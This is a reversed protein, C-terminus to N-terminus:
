ASPQSPAAAAFSSRSATRRRPRPSVIRGAMVTLRGEAVLRTVTAAVEPAIRHRHVDWWPRAHRLFRRQEDRDLSQWLSTVIRACATSPPAGASRPAEAGSGAGSRGFSETRCMTRRSRRRSSIPTRREPDPRPPVARRDERPTWCCGAVPGSRGDDPRHRRATCRRRTAALRRGRRARRRGVSQRHLPQGRESFHAFRKPSRTESQWRSQRPRRVGVRRRARSAMTRQRADRRIRRRMCWPDARERCGRRAARRSLPRVPAAACIRATAAKPRSASQSITRARRRAREHRRRSCQPPARSRDDFLRRRTWCARQRRDSRNSAAARLSSPSSRARHM